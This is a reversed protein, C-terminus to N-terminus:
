AGLTSLGNCGSPHTKQLSVVNVLSGLALLVRSLSSSMKPFLLLMHLPGPNQLFLQFMTVPTPTTSINGPPAKFALGSHLESSDTPLQPVMKPLCSLSMTHM